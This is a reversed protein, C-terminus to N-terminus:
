PTVTATPTPSASGGSSAAQPTAGTVAPGGPTAGAFLGQSTPLVYATAAMVVKNGDSDFTIGDVTLLRGAIMLDGERTWTLRKIGRLIDELRFFRGKFEFSFHMVRMEAAGTSAGTPAAATALANAPVSGLVQPDSGPAAPTSAAQNGAQGSPTPAPPAPASAAGQAAADAAELTLSDFKVGARDAARDLQYVLSAEDIHTPVSKGLRAMEAYAKPFDLRAQAFQQAEQRATEYTTKASDVDKSAQELDKLKPSFVLLWLGAVAALVGVVGLLYQDRKSM